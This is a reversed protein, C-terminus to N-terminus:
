DENKNGSPVSYNPIDVKYRVLTFTHSHNEM